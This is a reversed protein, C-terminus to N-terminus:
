HIFGEAESTGNFKFTKYNWAVIFAGTGLIGKIYPNTVHLGFLAGYLLFKGVCLNREVVLGALKVKDAENKNLNNLIERQLENIKIQARWGSIAFTTCLTANCLGSVTVRGVLALPKVGYASLSAIYNGFKGLFELQSGGWERVLEVTNTINAVSGTFRSSISYWDENRIDAILGGQLVYFGDGLFETFDSFDVAAKMIGPLAPLALRSIRTGEVLKCIMPIIQAEIHRYCSVDKHSGSFLANIKAYKDTFELVFTWGWSNKALNVLEIRKANQQGKIPLTNEIALTWSTM